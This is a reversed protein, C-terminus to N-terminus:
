ELLRESISSLACVALIHVEPAPMFRRVNMVSMRWNLDSKSGLASMAQAATRGVRGARLQVRSQASQPV